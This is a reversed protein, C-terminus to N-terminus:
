VPDPYAPWEKTFLAIFFFFPGAKSKSKSLIVWLHSRQLTLIHSPSSINQREQVACAPRPDVM